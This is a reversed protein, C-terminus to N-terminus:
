RASAPPTGARMQSLAQRWALPGLKTTKLSAAKAASRLADLPPVGAALYYCFAGHWVDGAGLTDVTKDQPVPISGRESGSFWEIPQEGHSVAVLGPGRGALEAASFRPHVYDASCLMFDTRDLVEDFVPKHSGADLVVPASLKAALKALDPYHGDLEVVDVDPLRVNELEPAAKPSGGSSVAREGTAANILVVSPPIGFGHPAADIIQVGASELDTRILRATPTSGLCTLLRAEGGLAAFAIAAVAAPGGAALWSSSAWTKRNPQPLADVVQIVDLTAMGAFLGTVAM